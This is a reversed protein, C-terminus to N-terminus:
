SIEHICLMHVYLCRCGVEFVGFEVRAGRKFGVDGWASVYMCVYMWGDDLMLCMGYM